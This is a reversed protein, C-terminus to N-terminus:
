YNRANSIVLVNMANLHINFHNKKYHRIYNRKAVYAGCQSCLKKLPTSTSPAAASVANIKSNVASPNEHLRQNVSPGQTTASSPMLVPPEYFASTSPHMIKGQVNTSM